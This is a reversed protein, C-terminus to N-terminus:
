RTDNGPTAPLAPRAADLAAPSPPAALRDAAAAAVDVSRLDAPDIGLREAIQLQRDAMGVRMEALFASAGLQVAALQDALGTPTLRTALRRAKVTGYVGATTGAVFWLM